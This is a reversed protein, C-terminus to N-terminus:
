GTILRRPVSNPTAFRTPRTRELIERARQLQGQELLLMALPRASEEDLSLGELLQEAEELRGQRIRL